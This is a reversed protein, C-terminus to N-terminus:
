LLAALDLHRDAVQELTAPPSHPIIGLIPARTLREIERANSQAEAEPTGPTAGSLIVGTVDLGRSRAAEVTLATHNITGLGDRAIVLLPLDLRGALDAILLDENLPVLLGGAGEVLLLEPGAAVIKSFAGVIRAPDIEVGERRAAVAPALPAELRYPCVTELDVQLSAAAVLRLADDPRLAGDPDRLCGSEAPKMAATRLGRRGAAALLAVTVATKGVGTDTGTVFWAKV